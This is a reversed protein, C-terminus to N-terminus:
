CSCKIQLRKRNSLKTTLLYTQLVILPDAGLLLFESSVAVEIRVM